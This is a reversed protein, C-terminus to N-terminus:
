DDSKVTIGRHVPCLILELASAVIVQTVLYIWHRYLTYKSTHPFELIPEQKGALWVTKAVLMAPRRQEVM